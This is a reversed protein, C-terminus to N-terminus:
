DRSDDVEILGRPDCDSSGRRIRHAEQPAAKWVGCGSPKPVLLPPAVKWKSDASILAARDRLQQKLLDDGVIRPDGSTGEAEAEVIGNREGRANALNLKLAALRNDDL